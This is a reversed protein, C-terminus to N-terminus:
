QAVEETKKTKKPRPTPTLAAVIGRVFRKRTEDDPGVYTEFPKTEIVIKETEANIADYIRGALEERAVEAKTKKKVRLEKPVAARRAKDARVKLYEYRKTLWPVDIFDYHGRSKAPNSFYGFYTDIAKGGMFVVVREGQDVFEKAKRLDEVILLEPAVERLIAAPHITFIAVTPQFEILRDYQRCVSVAINKENGTPWNAGQASKAPLCRLSNALFVESRQIGARELLRFNLVAGTRGVVPVGRSLLRPPINPFAATRRKMEAQSERVEGLVYRKEKGAPPCVSFNIEDNAPTEFVIAIKSTRPDGVDLVFGKGKGYLSCTSCSDPHWSSSM